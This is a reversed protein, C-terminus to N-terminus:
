HHRMTVRHHPNVRNCHQGYPCLPLVPIAVGHHPVHHHMVPAPAHMVPAPGWAPAAAHMVPAPGWAPAAAHMVPAPGWAPAAAHMVPAPAWAPAPAHMVPAPAWAPAQHIRGHGAHTNAHHTCQATTHFLHMIGNTHCYWCPRPPRQAPAQHIRGHGAHTNAHHTCQATTHFLHMIGNTHCYWCPRPLRQAPAPAPAPARAQHFPVLGLASPDIQLGMHVLHAGGGGCHTAIALRANAELKRQHREQESTM